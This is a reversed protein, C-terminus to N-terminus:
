NCKLLFHFSKNAPYNKRRNSTKVKLSYMALFTYYFRVLDNSYTSLNGKHVRIVSKANTQENTLHICM